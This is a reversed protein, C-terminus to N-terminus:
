EKGEARGLLIVALLILVIGVFSPVDPVEHFILVGFVMAALPEVIALASATGAPLERLSLTYLLYPVVETVIGLGILMPLLLNPDKVTYTVIEKPNCVLLAVLTMFLFSYMTATVPSNGRRMSIKTFINYGAYSIGSFVGLLIGLLDFKLGGIVGSVFCCGVLMCAIAVVKLKSLREGFFLVSVVTVYVPATYMLTVATSVSTMQMSSYYGSATGFLTVGAGLFLLLDPLKVRWLGRNRLLVYIAMCLFSVLGRVATMQLSTFGYPALFGVFIGSSGWFIGAIIVYIFAKKKM